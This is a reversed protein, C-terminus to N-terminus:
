HFGYPEIALQQQKRGNGWGQSAPWELKNDRDESFLGM